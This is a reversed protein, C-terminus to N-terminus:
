ILPSLGISEAASQLESQPNLLNRIWLNFTNYCIAKFIDFIFVICNQVGMEPPDAQLLDCLPSHITDALESLM